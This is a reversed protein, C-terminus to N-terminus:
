VSGLEAGVTQFQEVLTQIDTEDEDMPKGLPQVRWDAAYFGTAKLIHIATSQRVRENESELSQRLVQVSRSVLGSLQSPEGSQTATIASGTRSWIESEPEEM